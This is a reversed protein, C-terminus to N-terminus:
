EPMIPTKTEDKALLRGIGQMGDGVVYYSYYLNETGRRPRLRYFAEGVAVIQM